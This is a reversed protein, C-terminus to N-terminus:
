KFDRSLFGLLPFVFQLVLNKLQNISELNSFSSILIALHIDGFQVVPNIINFIFDVPLFELDLLNRILEIISKIIHKLVILFLCSWVQGSSLLVVKELDRKSM